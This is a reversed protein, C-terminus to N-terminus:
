ANNGGKWATHKMETIADAMAALTGQQERRVAEFHGFEFSGEHHVPAIPYRIRATQVGNM